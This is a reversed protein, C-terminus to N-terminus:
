NVLRPFECYAITPWQVLKSVFTMTNRFETVSLVSDM